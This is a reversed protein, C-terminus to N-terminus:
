STLAGYHLPKGTREWIDRGIAEFAATQVFKPRHLEIGLQLAGDIAYRLFAQVEQSQEGYYLPIQLVFKSPVEIEGSRTGGKIEEAYEFQRAGNDLRVAERFDVKRKASFDRCIELLTATDPVSIDACNEELFRVFDSQGMLKGSIGAWRLWQESQQLGYTAVHEVAGVNGNDVHYDIQAVFRNAGLDAFIRTADDGFAQVYEVFSDKVDIRVNQKIRERLLPTTPKIEEIAQAGAGKALVVFKRGDHEFTHLVAAQAAEIIKGVGGEIEAM